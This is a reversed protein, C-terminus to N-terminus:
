EVEVVDIKLQGLVQYLPLFAAYPSFGHLNTDRLKLHAADIGGHGQTADLPVWRDEIWVENWM